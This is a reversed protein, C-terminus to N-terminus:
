FSDLATAAAKSENQISKMTHQAIMAQYSGATGAVMMAMQMAGSNADTANAAAIAAAAGGVTNKFTYAAGAVEDAVTSGVSSLSSTLAYNAINTSASVAGSIASSAAKFLGLPDLLDIIIDKVKVFFGMTDEALNVSQTQTTEWVLREMHLENQEIKRMLRNDLTDKVANQALLMNATNNVLQQELTTSEGSKLLAQADLLAATNLNANTQSLQEGIYGFDLQALKEGQIGFLGEMSALFEQRAAPNENKQIFDDLAKFATVLTGKTDTMFSNMFDTASVGIDANIGHMMSRLAVSTADNQKVLLDVLEGTFGSLQPALAALPGEAAMMETTLSAVKDAAGGARAVIEQAKQLFAPVSRIFQNNGDTTEQVAKTAGAIQNMAEIMASEGDNGEKTANTYIAAFQQAM